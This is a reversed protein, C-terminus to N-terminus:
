TFVDRLAAEAAHFGCMGHVGGGPPTSASCLYVGDLPTRYPVPTPNPRAILQLLRASGGNIDGGVLNANRGELDVSNMAHRELICDQFGPAFREIQREIRDTMDVTSGHPVHCYAWLTHKGAPARSPDFRSHEALLVYPREPHRGDAVDRESAVLEELSGGLHVTGARGCLDNAWPIPESMAYDIKFIGPGYRFRELRYRSRLSLGNSAMRVFQRATVDLLVVRASPVEALRRIRRGTEIQGGLEAFRAALADAIKQAGGRPMPWGVAHGAGCLVLGIAASSAADLSIQSHAALGGFLARASETRFQKKALNEASRLAHLGFRALLFPRKPLHIIPGLVEDAFDDWSNAIPAILRRYADEDIGLREATAKISRYMVAVRGGDLPHALPIEPHVWELGYQELELSRLYPSGAAMPHIASCLDHVFGPRTLEASRTGGGISDNAELILVSLGAEALRVGAALGNPGAGVVVVDYSSRTGM